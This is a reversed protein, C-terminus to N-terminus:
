AGKLMQEAVHYAWAAIAMTPPTGPSKPLATADAIFLGPHDHLEGKGNILGKEPLDSIPAGGLPHVTTAMRNSFLVPRSSYEEIQKFREFVHQYIQNEKNSYQISLRGRHWRVKGPHTEEAMAVMFLSQRLTKKLSAPMPIQDLGSIGAQMFQANQEGDHFGFSGHCPMGKSYDQKSNGTLWLSVSDANTGFQNGLREMGDLGLHKERSQFLLKLTNFTGAALIVRNSQICQFRKKQHDFYDARYRFRQAPTNKTIAYAECGDHITLGSRMASFLYAMDLSTKSGTYSGLLGEDEYQSPLQLCRAEGFLRPKLQPDNKPKLYLGMSPAWINGGTKILTNDEYANLTHNPIRWEKKPTESGMQKLFRTYFPDMSAADFQKSIGNWYDPDM